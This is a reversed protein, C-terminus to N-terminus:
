FDFRQNVKEFFVAALEITPVSWLLTIKAIHRYPELDGVVCANAMHLFCSLMPTIGIGGAVLTIAKYRDVSIPIGYPGDVNIVLNPLDEASLTKALSLLRSTWQDAGQAKIHHTTFPENPGSSISFPHWATSSIAPVNLFVYQAMQSPLAASQGRVFWTEFNMDKTTLNSVTYGIVVCSM